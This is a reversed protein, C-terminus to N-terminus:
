SASWAAASASASAPRSPMRGCRAHACRRHDRARRRLVGHVGGVPLAPRHPRRVAHHHGQRASGTWTMTALAGRAVDIPHGLDQLHVIGHALFLTYGGSGGVLSGVILWYTPRRVVDRFEWPTATIYAPGHPDRPRRQGRRRRRRRADSGHGRAARARVAARATGRHRVARRHGVMRRALQRGDNMAWPLIYKVAFFGGIAGSSYLISLAMSRPARVLAVARDPQRHGRGHLRRRRGGARLGPLGRRRFERGHGHLARGRREHPQRRDAHPARRLSEGGDRGGSGAAGVHHHLFDHYAWPRARSASIRPWRPTSSRAATPRSIGPQLRVGAVARGLLIWGYYLPKSVQSGEDIRGLILDVAKEAIMITPANTNGGVIAPM